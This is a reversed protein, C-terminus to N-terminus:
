AYGCYGVAQGTTREITYCPFCMKRTNLLTTRITCIHIIYNPARVCFWRASITWLRISDLFNHLYAVQKLSLFILGFFFIAVQFLWLRHMNINWLCNKKLMYQSVRWIIVIPECCATEPSKPQHLFAGSKHDIETTQCLKFNLDNVKSIIIQSYSKFCFTWQLYLSKLVKHTTQTDYFTLTSNRLLIFILSFLVRSEVGLRYMTINKLRM